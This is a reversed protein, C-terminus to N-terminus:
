RLRANINWKKDGSTYLEYVHSKKIETGARSEFTHIVNFEFFKLSSADKKTTSRGSTIEFKQLKPKDPIYDVIVGFYSFSGIEPHKQKLSEVSDGFQWSELAIILKEKATGEDEADTAAKASTPSDTNPSASKGEVHEANRQCGVACFALCACLFFRTM